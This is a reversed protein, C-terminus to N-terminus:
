VEDFVGFSCYYIFLGTAVEIASYDEAVYAWVHKAYHDVIVILHSNGDKDPPTVSLGDFGVRARHHPPKLHSYIEEIHNEFKSRYKQCVGCEAVQEVIWRYPIRHGPFRKNMSLWTRRAGWHMKRGGHVEDFMEDCTWQRYTVNTRRVAGETVPVHDVPQQQVEPIQEAAVPEPLVEEQEPAVPVQGPREDEEEDHQGAFPVRQVVRKSVEGDM